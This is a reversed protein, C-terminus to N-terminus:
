VPGRFGLFVPEPKLEIGFQERVASQINNKLAILERATAGGRNVLALTHKSSVGVRGKAFGREFGAQEVLWAAPIKKQFEGTPYSPIIVGREAARQRIHEYQEANVIPNKFFSGASRSDPDNPDLVMGKSSRIRIVADRVERLSATGQPFARKLDAYTIKPAGGPKLSFSVRVIIWRDRETTNFRSSRYAFGCESNSFTTLDGSVADLAEVETITESVEQGYAGVNQVPTGGVTGPIGSLCEIGAHDREIAHHVFGDWDEGAGVHFIGDRDEIGKIAIKIVLGNFGEDAVVLNSGGGLVFTELEQERAFALADCVDDASCAEVFYRAPGGIGLTTLPALPINQAIEVSSSNLLRM